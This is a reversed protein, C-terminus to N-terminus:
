FSLLCLTFCGPVRARSGVFCWDRPPHNLPKPSLSQASRNGGLLGGAMRVQLLPTPPAEDGGSFDGDRLKKPIALYRKFM